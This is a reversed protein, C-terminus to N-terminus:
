KCAGACNAYQKPLTEYLAQDLKSQAGMNSLANWISELENPTSGLGSNMSNYFGGM